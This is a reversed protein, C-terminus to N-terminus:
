FIYSRDSSPYSFPLVRSGVFLDLDGDLDYDAAKVCTSNTNLDPIAQSFDSFQGKGNNIMLKDKYLTNGSPYQASGRAIYLDLDGDGDADFLLSASDEELKESSKYSVSIQEFTNSPTQIFWQEDQKRSGAIFIDTLGDDNIDGSSLAPGYQSFKHPLTRQFNFDIFDDDKSLFNLGLNNNPKNFIPNIAVDEIVNSPNYEITNLANITMKIITQLKGNPWIIHVSDIKTNEGLGFHAAKEPQSLYGRGSMISHSQQQENSYIKIVSGIGDKNAKQGILKIRIYNNKSDYEQSHNELLVAKDNINNIVIDLDGDKDLDGYAAGNSFTGFDLGWKKTVDTFGNGSNNKFIFNPIKIEPIAAILREKSVLNSATIRFDGFDRDTVDKPFGNTSDRICM